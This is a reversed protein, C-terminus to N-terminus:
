YKIYNPQNFKIPLLPEGRSYHVFYAACAFSKFVDIFAERRAVEPAALALVSWRFTTRDMLPMRRFGIRLRTQGQHPAARAVVRRPRHRARLVAAPACLSRARRARGAGGSDAPGLDSPCQSAPRRPRRRRLRRRGRRKRPRRRWVAEQTAAATVVAVEASGRGQGTPVSRFKQVPFIAPLDEPPLFPPYGYSVHPRGLPAGGVDPRGKGQQAQKPTKPRSCSM